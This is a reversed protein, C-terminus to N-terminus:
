AVQGDPQRTSLIDLNGLWNGAPDFLQLLDEGAPWVIRWGAQRFARGVYRGDRILLTEVVPEEREGEAIRAALTATALTRVTDASLQHMM